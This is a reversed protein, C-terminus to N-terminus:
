LSGHFRTIDFYVVEALGHAPKIVLADIRRAGATEDGQFLLEWSKGKPGFRRELWAYEDGVGELMSSQRIVVPNERSGSGGAKHVKAKMAM